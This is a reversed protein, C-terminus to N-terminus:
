RRPVASLKVVSFKLGSESTHPTRDKEIWQGSPLEPFFADGKPAIEIETLIIESALGDEIAQAYVNAGGVIFPQREPTQAALALAANLSIATECHEGHPAQWEVNKTLVITRRGPLAKGISDFTKRGMILTHGLTTQKFHRLDEPLHWPMKNDLGIVRNKAIAVVLTVM